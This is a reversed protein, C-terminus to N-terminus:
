TNTLNSSRMARRIPANGSANPPRPTTSCPPPKAPRTSSTAHVLEGIQQTERQSREALKRVEGPSLRLAGVTARGSLCSRHGCEAGAPQDRKAIADITAVVHRRHAPQPRGPRPRPGRRSGTSNAIERMGQVTSRMAQVGREAALRARESAEALDQATAAVQEVEGSVRALASAASQVQAMQEDAGRAIGDIAGAPAGRRQRRRQSDGRGAAEAGTDVDAAADKVQGVLRRLGALM